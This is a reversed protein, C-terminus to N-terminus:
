PCSGSRTPRLAINAGGRFFFIIPGPKNLVLNSMGTQALGFAFSLAVSRNFLTVASSRIM